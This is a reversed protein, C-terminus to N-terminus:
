RSRGAQAVKLLQAHLKLRAQDAAARNIEFRVTGREERFNIIGGLRTFRDMEGVTLVNAGGLRDLIRPLRARESASIYLIHCSELAEVRAFRKVVIPHLGITEGAVTQDLLAGFPDAGLVGIVLPAQPDAFAEPPWEVFKAFNFLYVAKIENPAAGSPQAQARSAALLAGLLLRCVARSWRGM